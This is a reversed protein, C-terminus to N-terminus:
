MDIWQGKQERKAKELLFGASALDEIAIGLSKYMTIDEDSQRGNVQGAIVSGLEGQLHDQQIIGERLPILYEGAENTL